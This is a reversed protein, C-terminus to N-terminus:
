GVEVTTVEVSAKVLKVEYKMGLEANANYIDADTKASADWTWKVTKTGAVTISNGALILKVHLYLNIHYLLIVTHSYLM